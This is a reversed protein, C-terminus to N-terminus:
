FMLYWKSSGTCCESMTYWFITDPDSHLIGNTSNTYCKPMTYWSITGPDFCLIGNLVALVASLCQIGPFPVQILIYFVMQVALIASLCQIGPFPVQILVYSVM